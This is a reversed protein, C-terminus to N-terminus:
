LVSCLVNDQIPLIRSFAYSFATYWLSRYQTWKWKADKTIVQGQVYSIVIDDAIKKGIVTRNM